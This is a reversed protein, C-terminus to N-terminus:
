TPPPLMKGNAYVMRIADCRERRGPVGEVGRGTAKCNSDARCCVIAHVAQARQDTRLKAPRVALLVLGGGRHCAEVAPRGTSRICRGYRLCGDAPGCCRGAVPCALIAHLAGDVDGTSAQLAISRRQHESLPRPEAPDTELAGERSLERFAATLNALTWHGGRILADQAEDITAEDSEWGLCNFAICQVIVEWNDESRYYEPHLRRFERGVREAEQQQIDALVEPDGTERALQEQVEPDYIMEEIGRKLAVAGLGTGRNDLPAFRSDPLEDDQSPPKLCTPCGSLDLQGFQSDLFKEAEMVAVQTPTLSMTGGLLKYDPCKFHRWNYIIGPQVGPESDISPTSHAGTHRDPALAELSNWLAHASVGLPTREGVNRRLEFLQERAPAWCRCRDKKHQQCAAIAREAEIRISEIRAVESPSLDGYVTRYTGLLKAIFEENVAQRTACALRVDAQIRAAMACLQDEENSTLRLEYDRAHALLWEIQTMTTSKRQAIIDELDARTLKEPTHTPSPVPAPTQQPEEMQRRIREVPSIFHVSRRGIAEGELRNLQTTKDPAIQRLFDFTARDNVVRRGALVDNLLDSLFTAM